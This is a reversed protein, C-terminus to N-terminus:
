YEREGFIASGVRVLTAGEEIAIQYDNSMGMSLHKMEVWSYNKSKINESLEKLERFVYRIEEPNSNYPAMTMLGKVKLSKMAELSKIFEDIEEIYIGAKSKEKAINVEILVELTKNKEMFRKNLEKALSLRDLSHIMDIQDVIFKVKNSQLYGIFHKEVKYAELLSYKENLEKTKSEGIIKVGKELAFKMQEFPVTKTVCVLQVDDMSRKSKKIANEINEYVIDLNTEISM